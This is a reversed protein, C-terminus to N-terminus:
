EQQRGLIQILASTIEAICLVPFVNPHELMLQRYSHQEVNGHLLEISM